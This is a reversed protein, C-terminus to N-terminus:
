WINVQDVHVVEEEKVVEDYMPEGLTEDEDEGEEM